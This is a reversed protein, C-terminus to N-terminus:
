ATIAGEIHEVIAGDPTFRVSAVDIRMRDIGEMKSLHFRWLRDAAHLLRMKKKGAISEFPREYAGVGRSRVEIMAALEGRRAVLDIELHGLRLNVALIEWGRAILYDAVIREARHGRALKDM